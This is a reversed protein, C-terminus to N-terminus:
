GIVSTGDPYEQLIHSASIAAILRGPRIQYRERGVRVVEYSAGTSLELRAACHEAEKLGYRHYTPLATTKNPMTYNGEM